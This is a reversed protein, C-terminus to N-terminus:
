SGCNATVISYLYIEAKGWTMKVKFSHYLQLYTREPLKVLSIIRAGLRLRQFLDTQRVLLEKPFCLNACYLCDATSWDVEFLDGHIVEINAMAPSAAKSVIERSLSCLDDLLEVGVVRRLAPCSIALTLLCKGAGSGLDWFEQGPQLDCYPLLSRFHIFDVEGYTFEHHGAIDKRLREAYSIDVLDYSEYLSNILQYQTRELPTLLDIERIEVGTLELEVPKNSLNLVGIHCVRSYAIWRDTDVCIRVGSQATEARDRGGKQQEVYDRYYDGDFPDLEYLTEPDCDEQPRYVPSRGQFYGTSYLHEKESPYNRDPSLFIAIAPSTSPTEILIRSAGAYKVIVKCYIWQELTARLPTEWDLLRIETVSQLYCLLSYRSVCECSGFVAIRYEGPRFDAHGPHIEVLESSATASKWM